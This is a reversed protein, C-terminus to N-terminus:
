GARRHGAITFEPEMLASRGDTALDALVEGWVPAFKFGNGSLATAVVVADGHVMDVIPMRNDTWSDSHLSWRVVEPILDPIIRQAQEGMWRLQDRSLTTQQDDVDAVTDFEIEPCIKISYGDLTPVGFAHTSGLDRMFGPFRDPTFREIHRPMLWSLAFARSCVLDALEPLLRTTWAGSTVIVREALHVGSDTEVRVGGADPEISQVATDFGFTAGHTLAQDIAAAVAMEPRMAGGLADLVGLDDDEIHFQPYRVRLEAASLVEHPLDFDAIATLTEEINADGQSAISLAGTPLLVDRGYAEGLEQWLTRSRLLSPTFLRSEKAAVRFLRSEGSYAGRTHIRGFQELGLVEVGRRALQWSAMSGLSGLGVVIVPWRRDGNM